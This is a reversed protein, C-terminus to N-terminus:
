PTRDGSQSINSVQHEHQNAHFCAHHTVDSEQQASAPLSTHFQVASLAPESGSRSPESRRRTRIAEQRMFRGGPDSGTGAPFGAPGSGSGSGAQLGEPGTRTHKQGAPPLSSSWAEAESGGLPWKTGTGSWSPTCSAAPEEEETRKTVEKRHASVPSPCKRSREGM